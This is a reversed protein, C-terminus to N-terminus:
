TQEYPKKLEAILHYPKFFNTKVEFGPIGYVKGHREWYPSNKDFYDFTHETFLNKHTPDAVAADLTESSCLPVTVKMVGGPALIRYVEQLVKIMEEPYLHELLNRAEVLTANEWEKPYPAKTIDWVKDPNVEESNDVNIYGEKKYFGCGLNIRKAEKEPDEKLGKAYTKEYEKVVKSMDRNQKVWDYANQAIKNRLKKDTLLKELKEKFEQDSSYLMGTEGDKIEDSYPPVNAVLAPIKLASYEYWKVCSKMKNFRTDELPILAVDLNLANTKIAHADVDVWSHYEYDVGQLTGEWKCGQLVLKYGHKQQTEPLLHQISAWDLFHTDGGSWGVRLQTDTRKFPMIQWREFDISNPLVVVNDNYEKITEKLRDTTVTVLDMDAIMNIATQVRENNDKIDFGGIGDKWLPKGNYDIEKLGWYRYQHTFPNFEWVEDDMDMVLKKQTCDYNNKIYFFLEPHGIRFILIDSQKVAEELQDDPLSQSIYATNHKEELFELPQRVRYFDAGNRGIPASVINLKRKM